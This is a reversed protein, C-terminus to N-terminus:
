SLRNVVQEAVKGAVWMGVLFAAAVVTIGVASTVLWNLQFSNLVGVFVGYVVYMVPLGIAFASGFYVVSSLALSRRSQTHNSVM